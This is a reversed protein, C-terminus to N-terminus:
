VWFAIRGRVRVFLLWAVVWLLVSYGLASFWVVPGPIHGLLPARVIELLSFFPNYILM